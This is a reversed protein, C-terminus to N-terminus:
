PTTKEGPGPLAISGLPLGHCVVKCELNERGGSIGAFDSTSFRDHGLGGLSESRNTDIWDFYFEVANCEQYPEVIQLFGLGILFVALFLRQQSHYFAHWNAVSATQVFLKVQRVGIFQVTIQRSHPAMLFIAPNRASESKIRQLM